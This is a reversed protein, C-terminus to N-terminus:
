NVVRTKLYGDKIRLTDTIDNSNILTMSFRLEMEHKNAANYSIVEFYNGQALTDLVYYDGLVHGNEVGSFLYNEVGDLQIFNEQAVLKQRGTHMPVNEFGLGYIYIDNKDFVDLYVNLVDKSNDIARPKANKWETGNITVQGKGWYEGDDIFTEKKCSNFAFLLATAFFLYTKM